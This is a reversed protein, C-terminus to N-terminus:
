GERAGQLRRAAVDWAVNAFFDELYQTRETPKLYMSFAHEWVDLALVPRCGALHGGDHEDVWVNILAGTRSEQYTVAWGVGPMGAVASLEAQYKEVSGFQRAALAGLPNDPTLPRGKPTLADFYLEHLRMGNFEWGLRRTMEQFPAEATKGEAALGSLRETLKNSRSVYGEYLELHAEIQDDPIGQLGRLASYDKPEFTIKM